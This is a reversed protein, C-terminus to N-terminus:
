MTFIFNEKFKNKTFIRFFIAYFIVSVYMYVCVCVCVVQIVLMSKILGRKVCCCMSKSQSLGVLTSYVKMTVLNMKRAKQTAM